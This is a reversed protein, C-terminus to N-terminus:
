LLDAVGVQSTDPNEAARSLDSGDLVFGRGLLTLGNVCAVNVLGSELFKERTELHGLFDTNCAAGLESDTTLGNTLTRAGFIHSEALPQYYRSKAIVEATSDKFVRPV